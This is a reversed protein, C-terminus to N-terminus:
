YRSPFINDPDRDSMGQPKSRKWSIKGYSQDIGSTLVSVQWFLDLEGNRTIIEFYRCPIDGTISSRLSTNAGVIRLCRGGFQSSAEGSFVFLREGNVFYSYHDWEVVKNLGNNHLPWRSGQGQAVVGVAALASLAASLLYLVSVM